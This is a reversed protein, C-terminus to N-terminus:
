GKKGWVLVDNLLIVACTCRGKRSGSLEVPLVDAHGEHLWFRHAAFLEDCHWEQALTVVQARKSQEDMRGNVNTAMEGIVKLADKLSDIYRPDHHVKESYKLLNELLLQPM